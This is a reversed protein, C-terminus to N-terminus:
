QALREAEADLAAFVLAAETPELRAQLDGTGDDNWGACAYSAETDGIDLDPKTAQRYARITRELQAATAARAFDLLEEERAPTAVRTLARVKTYSLEGSAFAAKILPLTPLARAVRVHDRATRGDLGCKWALWAATSRCGWAGAAERRDYEGVLLLWRCMAATSNAALQCLEAELREVPLCGLEDEVGGPVVTVEPPFM